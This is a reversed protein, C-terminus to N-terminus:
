VRDDDDLNIQVTVQTTGRSGWAEEMSVFYSIRLRSCGAFELADYKQAACESLELVHRLPNVIADLM